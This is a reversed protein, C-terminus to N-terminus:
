NFLIIGIIIIIVVVWIVLYALMNGQEREPCGDRKTCNLCDEREVLKSFETCYFKQGSSDKSDHTGHTSTLISKDKLVANLNSEPRM